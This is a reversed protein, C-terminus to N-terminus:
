CGLRRQRRRPDVDTLHPLPAAVVTDLCVLVCMTVGPSPIGVPPPEPVCRVIHDCEALADSNSTAILPVSALKKGSRRSRRRSRSSRRREGEALMNLKMEREQAVEELLTVAGPNHVSCYVHFTHSDKPPPLPKLTQSVLERDVYTKGAMDPLLREAVLRM